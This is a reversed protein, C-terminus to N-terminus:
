PHLLRFFKKGTPAANTVSMTTANSSVTGGFLTWNTTDLNGNEQLVFGVFSAPWSLVVSANILQVSLTPVGIAVVPTVTGQVALDLATSNAVDSVYWTGAASTGGYNVVRFTVNTGTGINQLAAIGSLDIAGISGGTATTVPYSLNTIDLFAGSGVQFQFM